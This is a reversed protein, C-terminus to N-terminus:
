PYGSTNVTKQSIHKGCIWFVIWREDKVTEETMLRLRLLTETDPLASEAVCFANEVYMDM